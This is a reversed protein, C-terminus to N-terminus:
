FIGSCVAAPDGTTRELNRSLLFVPSSPCRASECAFMHRVGPLIGSGKPRWDALPSLVDAGFVYVDASAASAFDYCFVIVTPWGRDVAIVVASHRM